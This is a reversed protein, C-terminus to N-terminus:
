EGKSRRALVEAGIRRKISRFDLIGLLTRDEESRVVPLYELEYDQMYKVADSLGREPLTWDRVPEMLDCALLWGALNQYALSNKIGSVTITGELRRDTGVVPYYLTNSQSFAELIQDLALSMDLTTLEERDMVDKVQYTEILDQETINMGVEGARHVAMKVFAPGAIQVIFTTATVTLIVAQGLEGEFRQGALISLGVAVGAQSFLCMGLYKQIVEPSGSLKGGFWAGALKGATRGIVYCVALIVVWMPMSTFQMRAGVLVFFLVYIPPTFKEVLEFTSHSRRPLANALTAGLAMAALISDVELSISLGIIVLVSALTFSLVKDHEHIKRLFFVLVLGMVVGIVVAGAIDWVPLLLNEALSTENNGTLLQAATAAFGFLILSLGDDLAVIALITRTLPGRTKYEWLVDVTAAPATASAIAGLVLGLAISMAWDHLLVYCVGTVLVTVLAFTVLGESLLITIFEKGYKRFIEARLEGGIHFGIMGLAFMNFPRLMEITETTVLKLGGSGVILGIVIYGVVQPIKFRQFIRAGISGGLVALGLLMVINLHGFDSGFGLLQMIM